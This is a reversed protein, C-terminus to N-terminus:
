GHRLDIMEWRARVAAPACRAAARPSSAWSRCRNTAGAGLPPCFRGLKAANAARARHLHRRRIAAAPLDSRTLSFRSSGARCASPALRRAPAAPRPRRCLALDPRACPKPQISMDARACRPARSVHDELSIAGPTPKERDRMMRVLHGNRGMGEAVRAIRAMM